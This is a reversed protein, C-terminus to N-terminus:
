ARIFRDFCCSWASKANDFPRNEIWTGTLNADADFCAANTMGVCEGNFALIRTKIKGSHRPVLYYASDFGDTSIDRSPVGPLTDANAKETALIAV